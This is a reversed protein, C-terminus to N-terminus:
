YEFFNACVKWPTISFQFKDFIPKLFFSIEFSPRFRPRWLKESREQGKSSKEQFVCLRSKFLIAFSHNGFFSLNKLFSKFVVELLWSLKSITVETTCIARNVKSEVMHEKNESHLLFDLNKRGNFWKIGYPQKGEEM